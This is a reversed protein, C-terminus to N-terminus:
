GANRRRRKLLWAAGSVLVAVAGAGATGLEPVGRTKKKAISTSPACETSAHVTAPVAWMLSLVVPVLKISKRM